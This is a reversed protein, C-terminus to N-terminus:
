FVFPFNIPDGQVRHRPFKWTKVLGGICRAMHSNKFEATQASIGTTSGTPRITWRMVLRGSTGPEKAKMENVCRVIDSKHAVVVGMIDSESLSEQVDSAVPPPIYGPQRRPKAGSDAVKQPKDAAFLADFDDEGGSTPPPATPKSARAVIAGDDDGSSTTT